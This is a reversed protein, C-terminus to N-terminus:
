GNVDSQERQAKKLNLIRMFRLLNSRESSVVEWAQDEITLRTGNEAPQHRESIPRYAIQATDGDQKFGAIGDFDPLAVPFRSGNEVKIM